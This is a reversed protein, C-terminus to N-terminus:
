FPMEIGFKVQKEGQIAKDNTLNNQEYELRLRVPKEEIVEKKTEAYEEKLEATKISNRIVRRDKGAGITSAIYAAQEEEKLKMFRKGDMRAAADEYPLEFTINETTTTNTSTWRSSDTESTIFCYVNEEGPELDGIDRGSRGTIEANKLVDGKVHKSLFSYTRQHVNKLTDNVTDINHVTKLEKLKKEYRAIEDPIVNKRIGPIDEFRRKKERLEQATRDHEKKANEINRNIKELDNKSKKDTRDKLDKLLWEYQRNLEDIWSVQRSEKKELELVEIKLREYEAALTRDYDRLKAISSRIEEETQLCDFCQEQSKINRLEEANLKQLDGSLTTPLTIPTVFNREKLFYCVGVQKKKPATYTDSVVINNVTDIYYWSISYAGPRLDVDAVFGEPMYTETDTSKLMKARVKAVVNQKNDRIIFVLGDANRGKAQGSALPAYLDTKITRNSSIYTKGITVVHIDAPIAKTQKTVTEVTYTIALRRPKILESTTKIDTDTRNFTYAVSVGGALDATTEGINNQTIKYSLGPAVELNLWPIKAIYRIGTLLESQEVNLHKTYDVGLHIEQDETIPIRVMGGGSVTTDPLYTTGDINQATGISNIKAGIGWYEFMTSIGLGLYASGVTSETMMKSRITSSIETMITKGLVSFPVGAIVSAEDYRITSKGAPNGYGDAKEIKKSSDYLYAGFFIDNFEKLCAGAALGMTTGDSSKYTGEVQYTDKKTKEARGNMILSGFNGVGYGLYPFTGGTLQKYTMVSDGM